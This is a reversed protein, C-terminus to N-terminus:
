SPTGFFKSCKWVELKQWNKGFIGNNQPNKDNKGLVSNFNSVLHCNNCKKKFFPHNRAFKYEFEVSM